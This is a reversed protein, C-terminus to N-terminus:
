AIKGIMKEIYNNDEQFIVNNEEFKDKPMKENILSLPEFKTNSIIFSNFIVDPDKMDKEIDKVTKHFQIKADSLGSIHMLGKPDIFSIYQKEDKILWLVFDPHFNNAEFFGVGRGKGQNRLLYLEKNTFINTNRDYFKKLDEVFCMEENNLHVPTVKVNNDRICILPTYLHNGWNFTRIGGFEIDRLDGNQISKKLQTLKTVIDMKSEDIFFKYEKVMNLDEDNFIVFERHDKEWENKKHNYFRECYKKMLILAIGQWRYVKDFDDLKLEEKPIKLIYWSENSLISKIMQKSLNLNYWAKEYKYREIAFFLEDYNLFALNKDKLYCENKIVGQVNNKVAEISQVKSYLDIVSPTRIFIDPPMELSIKGGNQKFSLGEKLRPFKLPTNIKGLNSIVPLCFEIIKDNSPLGEQKLYERFTAMYDAKVGFINLTEVNEIYQPPKVLNQERSRKLSFNYGKLRVGRGFLQIIQSGETKGINMLGMTSVRWSSWGETFKKSGILLNITSGKKNIGHFLSDAFDKQSTHLNNEDCLKILDGTDGVNIVGFYDNNGIRLGIEGDSGKLNEIHLHAQEVQSNFITQLIQTYLQEGSFSKKVLYSFKNEFIRVSKGDLFGDRASILNDLFRISQERDKIFDSVFMLIDVVDSVQRKNETRVANVSGGVFIWLPKELLFPIFATKNEEFIKIQQFYALLCATLYQKRIQEDADDELNLIRYDKGYGDNYFYKYSYDFLICKSYEHELNTKNSARVAQGFTASYEFSFGTECLKDRKIKWEDGSSGRHGEDVLVLNNGEFSDVAVTKDGHEDKLKTIEIIEVPKLISLLTIQEKQFIECNIDSLEFEEKHQKSLGENPTVLIIRNLDNYKDYKKLYHQYQLINVHMLLTKGSGTANWFAIKNLDELKYEEVQDDPLARQNYNDRFENLDKLLEVSNTFYKDLYIETFLLALYQFYKWKIKQERKQQIQRTHRIINEDYDELKAILLNTFEFLRSIIALHFNTRNKEYNIEELDCSKINPAIKEISDIKFLSLIYKYLVLKKHFDIKKNNKKKTTVTM